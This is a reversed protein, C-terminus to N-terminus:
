EVPGEFAVTAAKGSSSVEVRVLEREDRPVTFIYSGDRSARSRVSGALPKAGKSLASAPTRDKGYTVFVVLRDVAIAKATRNRAEITVKLAPGGVEGPVQAAATVPTIDRLRLSLGSDLEAPEDLPVAKKTKVSEM